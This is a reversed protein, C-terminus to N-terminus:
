AGSYVLQEAQAKCDVEGERALPYGEGPPGFYRYLQRTWALCDRRFCIECEAVCTTWTTKLGYRDECDGCIYPM